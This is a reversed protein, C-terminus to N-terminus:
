GGGGSESEINSSLKKVDDVIDRLRQADSPDFHFHVHKDGNKSVKQNDLAGHLKLLDRNASIRTSYDPYDQVKGDVIVPKTSNKAYDFHREITERLSLEKKQLIEEIFPQAAKVMKDSHSAATNKSHSPFAEMFALKGNCGNRVYAHAFKKARYERAQKTYKM